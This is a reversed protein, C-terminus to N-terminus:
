RRDGRHGRTVSESGRATPLDHVSRARRHGHGGVELDAPEITFTRPQDCAIALPAWRAFVRSTALSRMTVTQTYLGRDIEAAGLSVFENPDGSTTVTRLYRRGASTMWRRDAPNWRDLVAGRLRLPQPWQIPVGQPDAWEVTFVERNSQELQDNRTLDVEPTFGTRSGLAAGNADIQRPFILFVGTALLCAVFTCGSSWAESSGSRRVGRPPKSRLCRSIPWWDADVPAPM